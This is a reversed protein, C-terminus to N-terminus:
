PRAEVIAALAAVNEAPLYEAMELLRGAIVRQQVTPLPNRSTACHGSNVAPLSDTPSTGGAEDAALM